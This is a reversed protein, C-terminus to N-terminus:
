SMRCAAASRKPSPQLLLWGSTTNFESCACPHSVGLDNLQSLASVWQAVFPLRSYKTLNHYKKIKYFTHFIKGNTDLQLSISKTDNGEVNMASCTYTGSHQETLQNIQYVVTTVYEDGQKETGNVGHPILVSADSTVGAGSTMNGEDSNISRESMWIVDPKPNGDASCILLIDEGTSYNPPDTWVEISPKDVHNVFVM